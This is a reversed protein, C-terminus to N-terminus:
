LADEAMSLVAPAIMTSKDAPTAANCKVQKTQRIRLLGLGKKQLSKKGQDRM